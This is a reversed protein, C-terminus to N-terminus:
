LVYPPETIKIIKALNGCVGAPEIFGGEECCKRESEFTKHQSDEM